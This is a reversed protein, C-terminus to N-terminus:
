RMWNTEGDFMGAFTLATELYDRCIECTIKELQEGIEANRANRKGYNDWDVFERTCIIQSPTHSNEWGGDAPTDTAVVHTENDEGFSEIIDWFFM